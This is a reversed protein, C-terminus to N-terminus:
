LFYGVLVFRIIISLSCITYFFFCLLLMKFKHVQLKDEKKILNCMPHKRQGEIYKYVNLKSIMNKYVILTKQSCLPCLPCLPCFIFM